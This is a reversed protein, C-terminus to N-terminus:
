RPRAPNSPSQIPVLPPRAAAPLASASASLRSLRAEAQAATQGQVAEAAEPVGRVGGEDVTFRVRRRPLHPAFLVEMSRQVGSGDGDGDGGRGRGSRSVGIRVDVCNAWSLGLAPLVVRGSSEMAWQEECGGGGDSRGKEPGSFRDTVQNCVVVVVRQLASLRRLAASLAFLAEAKHAQAASREDMRFVAAVSDLVVLRLRHERVRRPLRQVASQLEELGRCQEVYVSSLYDYAATWPLRTRMGEQLQRLRGIPLAGETGIYLACGDLGYASLDAGATPPSPPLPLQVQLLLQFCLQSKAAGAEGVVENLGPRLGGDLVADLVPCGLSLM